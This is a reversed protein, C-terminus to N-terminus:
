AYAASCIVSLVIRTCSTVSSLSVQLQSAAALGTSWGTLTSSSAIQASSLTPKASATISTLSGPFSANTCYKLDLVCSGSQDATIVWSTITMGIPINLSQYVGTAPTSGGGDIIYVLEVTKAPLDGAVISRASIVHSADQALFATSSGSASLDAYTGGRALALQGATIISANLNPLDAAVLQASSIVHSSNQKLVYTGGNDSAGGSGSLDVNTGGQALALQGSTIQSAPLSPLDGIVITRLSLAGTTGDPTALFSNATKGSAFGLTITGNSTLPSGSVSFVSPAALGVSTLGTGSGSPVSWTGDAKLFAGAAADGAGPAPAAGKVGGSGSDGVMVVLQAATTVGSIDGFSPQTTSFLGTSADYSSVWQHSTGGNTQALQPTGTLDSYDPQTVTWTSTSADYSKLWKHSVSAQTPTSPPTTFVGNGNLFETPIGTFIPGAVVDSLGNGVVISDAVLPGENNTVFGGGTSLVGVAQDPYIATISGNYVVVVTYVGSVLYGYTEGYGNTVLPQALTHTATSDTYVTALPSPPVTGTSAPQTCIYVQAGPVALGQTSQELWDLRFAAPIAM